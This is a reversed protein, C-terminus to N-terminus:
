GVATVEDRGPERRRLPVRQGWTLCRWAWEAPGYRYRRLWVASWTAELVVIGATLVWVMTADELGDIGLAPSLGLFLATAALYNTLAMRGMPALVAQLPGGLPTRLLLVTGTAYALGTCVGALQSTLSTPGLSLTPLLVGASVSWWHLATVAALAAFALAVRGTHDALGEPVRLLALGYGLILLGPMVGYGPVLQGGALLLVVGLGCAAAGGLLSVPLLFVLGMVAYVSLVEGPHVLQHLLGVVLLVLLRRVLVRRPRDTRAAARLLFIGFSIGFLLTFVPLFREYFGYRVVLPLEGLGYAVGEPFEKPLLVQQYINVVHIGCLALGRVVDLDHIREGTSRGKM